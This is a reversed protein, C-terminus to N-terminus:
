SQYIHTHTHTHTHSRLTHQAPCIKLAAAHSWAAMSEPYERASAMLAICLPRCRAYAVDGWSSFPVTLATYLM